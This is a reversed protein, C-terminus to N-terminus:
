TVVVVLVFIRIVRAHLIIGKRDGGRWCGEILWRLGNEVLVKGEERMVKWIERAETLLLLGAAVVAGFM